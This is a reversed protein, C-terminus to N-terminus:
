LSTFHGNLGDGMLFNGTGTTHDTGTWTAHIAGADHYIIAWGVTAADGVEWYHSPLPYPYIPDYDPYEAVDFSGNIVLEPGM